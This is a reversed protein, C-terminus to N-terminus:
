SITASEIPPLSLWSNIWESMCFLFTAYIVHLMSVPVKSISLNLGGSKIVALFTAGHFHAFEHVM